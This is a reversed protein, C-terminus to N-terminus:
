YPTLVNNPYNERVSAVDAPTWSLDVRKEALDKITEALAQKAAERLGLSYSKGDHEMSKKLRHMSWTMLTRFRIAPPDDAKIHKHLTSAHLSPHPLALLPTRHM